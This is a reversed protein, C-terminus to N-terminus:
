TLLQPYNVVLNISITTEFHNEKPKIEIKPYADVYKQM